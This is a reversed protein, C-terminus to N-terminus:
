FLVLVKKSLSLYLKEKRRVGIRLVRVENESGSRVYKSYRELLKEQQQRMGSCCSGLIVIDNVCRLREINDAEQNWM